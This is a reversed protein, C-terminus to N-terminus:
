PLEKSERDQSRAVAVAAAIEIFNGPAQTSWGNNLRVIAPGDSFLSMSRGLKYKTIEANADAITTGGITDRLQSRDQIRASTVIQWSARHRGPKYGAPAPSQWLAPNGVPTALVVSRTIAKADEKLIDEIEKELVSRIEKAEFLKAM